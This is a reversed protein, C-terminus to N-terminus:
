GGPRYTGTSPDYVYTGGVNSGFNGSSQPAISQNFNYQRSLQSLSGGLQSISQSIAQNRALQGYYEGAAAPDAAAAVNYTNQLTAQEGANNAAAAAVQDRTTILYPQASSTALETWRQAANQGIGMGELTGIGLDRLTRNGGSPTGADGRAISMEASHRMISDVVEQPLEGRVLAGSTEMGKAITGTLGPALRNLLDQISGINALNSATAKGQEESLDIPTYPAVKPKKGFVASPDDPGQSANYASYAATGASVIAAAAAWIEAM